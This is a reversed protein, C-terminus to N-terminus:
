KGGLADIGVLASQAVKIEDRLQAAKEFELSKAAEYMQKELKKIHAALEAPTRKLLLAEGYGGQGEAVKQLGQKRGRPKIAYPSDEM